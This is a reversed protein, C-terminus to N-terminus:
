CWLALVREERACNRLPICKISRSDLTIWQVYEPIAQRLESGWRSIGAWPLKSIILCFCFCFDSRPVFFLRNRIKPGIWQDPYPDPDLIWKGSKWCPSNRWKLPTPKTRFTPPRPITPAPALQLDTVFNIYRFHWLKSFINQTEVGFQSM